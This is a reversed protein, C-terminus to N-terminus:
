SFRWSLEHLIFAFISNSVRSISTKAHISPDLGSPNFMKMRVRERYHSLTLINLGGFLFIDGIILMFPSSNLFVEVRWQM